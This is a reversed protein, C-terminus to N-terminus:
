TGDDDQKLIQVYKRQRRLMRRRANPERDDYDLLHLAGHVLLLAVEDEAAAGRGAAQREAAPLSIVVDGLVCYESPAAGDQPFSLVDTTRDIGRHERFAHYCPSCLKPDRSLHQCRPCVPAGCRACPRSLTLRRSIIGSLVALLAPLLLIGSFSSAPIWGVGTRWFNDQISNKLESPAMVRKLVLALPVPMVAVTRNVQAPARMESLDDALGPNMDRAQAFLSKSKPIDMKEAYAQSLNFVPILQDPEASHSIEFNDMAHEMDSVAMYLCGLNNHVVALYQEQKLAEKLFTSATRYRGEKYHVLALSLLVDLDQTRSEIATEHHKELTSLDNNSFRGSRINLIAELIPQERMALASANIMSLMPLPMLLLLLIVGMVKERTTMYLSFLVLWYAAMVWLPASFFIPVVLLVLGLASVMLSPLFGQPFLDSFDHIFASSYRIVMILAFVLFIWGLNYIMMSSLGSLVRTLDYVDMAYARIVAGYESLAAGLDFHGLKLHYRARSIRIGADQPALLRATEMLQASLQPDQDHILSARHMLAASMAALNYIGSDWKSELLENLYYLADDGEGADLSALAETWFIDMEVLSADLNQADFAADDQAHVLGAALFVLVLMIAAVFINKFGSILYKYGENPLAVMFFAGFRSELRPTSRAYM